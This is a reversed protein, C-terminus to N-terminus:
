CSVACSKVKSRIIERDSHDEGGNQGIGLGALGTEPKRNDARKEKEKQEGEEVEAPPEVLLIRRLFGGGDSDETAAHRGAREFGRAEVVLAVRRLDPERIGDFGAGRQFLKGDRVGAFFKVVAQQQEMLANRVAGDVNKGRGDYVGGIFHAGEALRKALFIQM